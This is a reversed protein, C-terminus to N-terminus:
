GTNQVFYLCIKALRSSDINAVLFAIIVNIFVTMIFYFLRTNFMKTFVLLYNKHNQNSEEKPLCVHGNIFQIFSPTLISLANMFIDLGDVM